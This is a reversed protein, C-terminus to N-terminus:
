ASSCARRSGAGVEGYSMGSQLSGFDAAILERGDILRQVGDRVRVDALPERRAGVRLQDAEVRAAQHDFRM